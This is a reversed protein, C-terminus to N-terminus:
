LCGAVKELEGGVPKLKVMLPPKEWLVHVKQYLWNSSEDCLEFDFSAILSAFILRMEHWAMNQGICGRPGYSFPQFSDRRDGEYEPDGLWREPAFSEPNKFNDASHYTAYQHISVRTGPGVWKGCIM